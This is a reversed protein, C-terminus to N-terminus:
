LEARTFADGRITIKFAGFLVSYLLEKLANLDVIEFSVDEILQM